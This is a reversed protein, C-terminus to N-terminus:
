QNGLSSDVVEDTLNDLRLSSFSIRQGNAIGAACIENIGPHDSVAASVLGIKDTMPHPNKPNTRLDAM